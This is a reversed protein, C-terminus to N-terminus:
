NSGPKKQVNTIRPLIADFLYVPLPRAIDDLEHVFRSSRM